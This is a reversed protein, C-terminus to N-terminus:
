VSLGTPSKTKGPALLRTIEALGATDGKEQLLAKAREAAEDAAELKGGLGLVEARALWLDALLLPSDSAAALQLAESSLRDAETTLGKRAALKAATSRWLFQVYVDHAVARERADAVARASAEYEASWYLLEALRAAWTSEYPGDGLPSFHSRAARAIAAAADLEGARREVLLAVAGWGTNVVRATGMDEYILRAEDCLRRADEFRGELAALAALATTAHATSLRDSSRSRIESCRAIADRVHLPGYLLGYSLPLNAAAPSFSAREYAEVAREAAATADAYRCAWEHVRVAGLWARSVARDDGAAELVDISRRSTELLDAASMAGQGFAIAARELAIWAEVKGSKALRADDAARELADSGGGLVREAIWLECLLEARREGAPLLATARRLLGVAARADNQRWARMAALGLREGAATETAAAPEGTSRGLEAAQELHYGVLADDGADGRDLWAAAREHLAARDRKTLTAYAADRLLVHHFRYADDGPVADAAPRIFGRRRLSALEADPPADLLATAGGRTFERGFVAARQLVSREEPELQGLRGALVAELTPPLGEGAAAAYAALQEAFLPNGEALEVIETRKHDDLEALAEVVLRADEEALPGLEVTEGLTRGLEPRALCLVLLPVEARDALYDVLDLLGPEAWHVDDLVFLVPRRASLAELLRRVAWYAEGLSVADTGEALSALRELVLPADPEHELAATAEVHRLASLLPVFTAGDGFSVCRGVLFEVDGRRVRVLEHALRSKGIGPEGVVTVVRCRREAQAAALAGELRGLEEGRGVLPVDHRRVAHVLEHTRADLQVGTGRALEAARVFVSGAGGVAEGTAVGAPLGLEEAAAAARLADDDGAREAGFVAVLGEPGFRVLEGRHRQLTRRAAALVEDLRQRLREPDEEAPPIAILVSVLQREAQAPRSDPAPAAPAALAPDQRLIRRELEQLEPTPDLGLEDALALRAARYVELAEAQRGCRYLALMLQGRLRERLPHAAVLAELEPVLAGHRGLELDAELREELANVYLEDLRAAELRAFEAEDLDALAPGRWLALAESLLAARGAPEATRAESVLREFRKADVDDPRVLLRYGPAQTVLVGEGLVKRVAHVANQLSGTASPPAREGWLDAVLRDTPVTEGARLALAALLARQQRRPLTFTVGGDRVELPGLLRIEV